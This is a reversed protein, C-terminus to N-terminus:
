EMEQFVERLGYLTSNLLLDNDFLYEIHKNWSRRARIFLGTLRRNEDRLRNVEDEVGQGDQAGTVTELAARLLRIEEQLRSIEDMEFNDANSLCRPTTDDARGEMRPIIYQAQPDTVTKSM